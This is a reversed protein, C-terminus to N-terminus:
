ATGGAARSVTGRCTRLPAPTGFFVKVRLDGPVVSNVPGQVVQRVRLRPSLPADRMLRCEHWNEWNRAPLCAMRSPTVSRVAHFIGRDRTDPKLGSCVLPGTSPKHTDRKNEYGGNKDSCAIAVGDTNAITGYRWEDRNGPRLVGCVRRVHANYLQIRNTKAILRQCDQSLQSAAGSMSNADLIVFKAAVDDASETPDLAGVAHGYM